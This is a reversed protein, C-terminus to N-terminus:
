LWSWEGDVRYNSSQLKRGNELIFEMHWSDNWFWNAKVTVDNIKKSATFVNCGGGFSEVGQADEYGLPVGDRLEPTKYCSWFFDQIFIKALTNPEILEPNFKLYNLDVNM